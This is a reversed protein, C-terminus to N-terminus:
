SILIRLIGIRLRRDLTVFIRDILNLRYLFCRGVCHPETLEIFIYPHPDFKPLIGSFHSTVRVVTACGTITRLFNGGVTSCTAFRRAALLSAPVMGRCFWRLSRGPRPYVLVFIFSNYWSIANLLWDQGIILVYQRSTLDCSSRSMVGTIRRVLM